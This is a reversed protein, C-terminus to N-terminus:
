DSKGLLSYKKKRIQYIQYTYGAFIKERKAAQKRVRDTTEKASWIRLQTFNWTDREEKIKRDSQNRTEGFFFFNWWNCNGWTSRCTKKRGTKYNRDESQRGAIGLKNKYGHSILDLEGRRFMSMWKEM